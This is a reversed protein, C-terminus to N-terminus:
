LFPVLRADIRKEAKVARAAVKRGAGSGEEGSGEEGSGEEGSGEELAKVARAAVQAPRLQV